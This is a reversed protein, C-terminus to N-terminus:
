DGATWGPPTLEPLMKWVPHCLYTWWAGHFLGYFLSAEKQGLEDAKPLFAPNHVLVTELLPSMARAASDTFGSFRVMPEKPRTEAPASDASWRRFAHLIAIPYAVSRRYAEEEEESECFRIVVFELARTMCQVADIWALIDTRLEADM